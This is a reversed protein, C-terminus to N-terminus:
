IEEQENGHQRIGSKSTPIIVGFVCNFFVPFSLPKSISIRVSMAIAIKAQPTTFTDCSITPWAPAATRSPIGTLATEVVVAAIAPSWNVDM